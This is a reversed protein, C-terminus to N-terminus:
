KWRQMHTMWQSKSRLSGQLVQTQGQSPWTHLDHPQKPQLPEPLVLYEPPHHSPCCSIYRELLTHNQRSFGGGQCLLRASWLKCPRLTPCLRLLEGHM